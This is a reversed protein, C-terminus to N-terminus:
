SARRLPARRDRPDGRTVDQPVASRTPEWPGSAEADDNRSSDAPDGEADEPGLIRGPDRQGLKAARQAEGEKRDDIGRDTRLRSMRLTSARRRRRLSAQLGRRARAAASRRPSAELGSAAAPEVAEGAREVVGVLERRQEDRREAQGRRQDELLPVLERQARRDGEAAATHDQRRDEEGEGAAAQDRERIRRRDRAITTRAADACPARPTIIEAQGGHDEEDCRGCAALVADGVGVAAAPSGVDPLDAPPHDLVLGTLADARRVELDGRDVIQESGPPMREVLVDDILRGDGM